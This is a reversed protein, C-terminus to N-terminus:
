QGGDRPVRLAEFIEPLHGDPFHVDVVAGLVQSVEGQIESM